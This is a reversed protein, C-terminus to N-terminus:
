GFHRIFILATPRDQWLGTIDVEAGTEDLVTLGKLAVPIRERETM